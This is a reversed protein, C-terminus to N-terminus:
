GETNCSRRLKKVFGEWGELRALENKQFVPFKLKKNNRKCYLREDNVKPPFYFEFYHMYQKNLVDNRDWNEDEFTNDSIDCYYGTRVQVIDLGSFSWNGNVYIERGRTGKLDWVFVVIDGAMIELINKMIIKRNTYRFAWKDKKRAKSLYDERSHGGKRGKTALYILWIKQSRSIYNSVYNGITGDVIKKARKLFWFSFSEPNIENIDSLDMYNHLQDNELVIIFGKHENYCEEYVKKGHNFKSTKWEVEINHFSDDNYIVRLDTKHKIV